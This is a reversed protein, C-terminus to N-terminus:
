AAVREHRGEQRGQEYTYDAFAEDVATRATAPPVMAELAATVAAKLIAAAVIEEAQDYGHQYRMCSECMGDSTVIPLGERCCGSCRQCKPDAPLLGRVALYDEFCTPITVPQM